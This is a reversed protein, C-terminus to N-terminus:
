AKKLCSYTQMSGSEDSKVVTWINTGELTIFYLINDSSAYEVICYVRQGPYKKNLKAAVKLPLQEPQLYRSTALLTGDEKFFATVKANSMTFKATFTHNDETYWKVDTAGTFTETFSNYLKKSVATEYNRAFLTNVSLVLIAGLLLILKKM